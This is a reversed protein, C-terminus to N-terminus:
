VDDRALALGGMASTLQLNGMPSTSHCGGEMRGTGDGGDSGGFRRMGRLGKPCYNDATWFTKFM